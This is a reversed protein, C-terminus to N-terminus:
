CATGSERMARFLFQRIGKPSRTSRVRTQEGAARVSAAGGDAAAACGEAFREQGHAAERHAATDEFGALREVTAGLAAAAADRAALGRQAGNATHSLTGIATCLSKLLESRQRLSLEIEPLGAERRAGFIAGNRGTVDGCWALEPVM